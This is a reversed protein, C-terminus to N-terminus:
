FGSRLDRILRQIGYMKKKNNVIGVLLSLRVWLRHLRFFRHRNWLALYLSVEM